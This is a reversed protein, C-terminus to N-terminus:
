WPACGRSGGTYLGMQLARGQFKPEAQFGAQLWAWCAEALAAFGHQQALSGAVRGKNTTRGARVYGKGGVCVGGCSGSVLSITSSLPARTSDSLPTQQMSSNSLILSAAREM